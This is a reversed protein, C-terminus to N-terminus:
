EIRRLARAAARRTAFFAVAGAMPPILVVLLWSAGSYGLGTLLGSPDEAQPLFAM